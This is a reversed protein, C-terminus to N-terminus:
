SFRMDLDLYTLANKSLLKVNLFNKEYEIIQTVHIFFFNNNLFFEYEVAFM